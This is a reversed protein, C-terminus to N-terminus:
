HACCEISPETEYLGEVCLATINRKSLYDYFFAVEKKVDRIRKRETHM